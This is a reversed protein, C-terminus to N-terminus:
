EDLIQALHHRLHRVYDRMWWELTAPENDGILCRTGRRDPPVSEMAYAVQSNLGAWIEVLEKWPRDRYRHRAVWAEQDYGPGVFPDALPARVFRQHNNAASDILHGLIEKKIWKGTGRDSTVAAEGLQRLRPLASEVEARLDRAAEGM